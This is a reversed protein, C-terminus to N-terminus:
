DYKRPMLTEPNYGMREHFEASAEKLRRINYPDWSHFNGHSLNIGTQRRAKIDEDGREHRKQFWTKEVNEYPVGIYSFIREVNTKTDLCLDEYFIDLCRKRHRERWDLMIKIDEIWYKFAKDLTKGPELTHIYTSLMSKTVDLGNRYIMIYDVDGGYLWEIFDLIRVYEPTKDVWRKKGHAVMYALFFDDATSRLRDRVYNEDFGMSDLARM